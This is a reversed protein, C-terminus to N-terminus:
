KNMEFFDRLKEPFDENLFLEGNLWEGKTELAECPMEGNAIIYAIGKKSKLYENKTMDTDSNNYIVNFFTDMNNTLNDEQLFMENIFRTMVDVMVSVNEKPGDSFNPYNIYLRTYTNDLSMMVGKECFIREGTQEDNYYIDEDPAVSVGGIYDVVNDFSANTVTMYSDVQIGMTNEVANKVGNVGKNIYISDISALPDEENESALLKPSVPVIRISATDPLLRVLLAHNLENFDDVQVYLLTKRDEATPVDMGSSINKGGADDKVFKDVVFYGALGFVALGMLLTLFYAVAVPIQTKNKKTQQSNGM